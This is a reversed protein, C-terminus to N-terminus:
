LWYHRHQSSQLQRVLDEELFEPLEEVSRLDYEDDTIDYLWLRFANRREGEVAIVVWVGGFSNPEIGLVIFKRTYIDLFKEGDLVGLVCNPCTRHTQATQNFNKRIQAPIPTEYIEKIEELLGQAEGSFALPCCVLLVVLFLLKRGHLQPVM